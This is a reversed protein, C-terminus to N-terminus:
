HRTCPCRCPAPSPLMSPHHFCVCVHCSPQLLDQPPPLQRAPKGPESAAHAVLALILWVPPQHHMVVPRTVLPAGCGIVHEAQFTTHITHTHSPPHVVNTQTIRESVHKTQFPPPRRHYPHTYRVQLACRMEALCQRSHGRMGGVGDCWVWGMQRPDFFVLLSSTSTAAQLQRKPPHQPRTHAERTRCARFRSRHCMPDDCAQLSTLVGSPPAFWTHRAASQTSSAHMRAHPQNITVLHQTYSILEQSHSVRASSPVHIHCGVKEKSTGEIAASNHM